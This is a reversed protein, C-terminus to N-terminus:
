LDTPEHVKPYLVCSSWGDKDVWTDRLVRHPRIEMGCHKCTM